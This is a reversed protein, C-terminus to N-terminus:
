GKLDKRLGKVRRIEKPYIKIYVYAPIVSVWTMVILYLIYSVIEEVAPIFLQLPLTVLLIILIPILQLLFTDFMKNRVFVKSARMGDLAGRDELMIAPITYFYWIAFIVGPIIFLIIGFGVLLGVLIGAGILSPIKRVVSGFAARLEIEKNELVNKVMLPYMGEVLTYIAISLVLYPLVFKLLPIIDSLSTIQDPAIEILSDVFLSFLSVVLMPLLIVPKHLIISFSERLAGWVEIDVKNKM